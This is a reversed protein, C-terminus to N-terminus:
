DAAAGHTPVSLPAPGLMALLRWPTRHSQSPRQVPAPDIRIDASTLEFVTDPSCVKLAACTQLSSILRDRNAVLTAAPNTRAEADLQELVALPVTVSRVQGDVLCIASVGCLGGEDDYADALYGLGGREVLRHLRASIEHDIPQDRRESVIVANLSLDLLAALDCQSLKRRERWVKLETGRM